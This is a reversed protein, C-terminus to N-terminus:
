AWTCQATSRTAAFSCLLLFNSPPLPILIVVAIEDDDDSAPPTPPPFATALPTFSSSSKSSPPPISSSGGGLNSTSHVTWPTTPTPKFPHLTLFSSLSSSSSPVHPPTHSPLLILGNYLAARHIYYLIYIGIWLCAKKNKVTKKKKKKKKEKKEKKESKKTKKSKKKNREGEGHLGSIDTRAARRDKSAPKHQRDEGGHGDM